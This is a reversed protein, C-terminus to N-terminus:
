LKDDNNMSVIFDRSPILYKASHILVYIELNVRNENVKTTHTETNLGTLYHETQSTISSSVNIIVHYMEHAIIM